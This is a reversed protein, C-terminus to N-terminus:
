NNINRVTSREIIIPELYIKKIEKEKLGNKIRNILLETTVKGIEEYPQKITTLDIKPFGSIEIDDFGILSIDDPIKIGEEILYKWVGLAVYDCYTFVATPMKILNNLKKAMEYSSKINGETYIINKKDSKIGNESLVDM